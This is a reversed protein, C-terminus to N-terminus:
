MRRAVPAQCLHAVHERKFVLVASASSLLCASDLLSVKAPVPYPFEHAESSSVRTHQRCMVPYSVPLLCRALRASYEYRVEVTPSSVSQGIWGWSETPSSARREWM